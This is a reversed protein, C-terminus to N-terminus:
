DVILSGLLEDHGVYFHQSYEGPRLWILAPSVGRMLFGCVQQGESVSIPRGDSRVIFIHLLDEEGEFQYRYDGWAGGFDNPEIGVSQLAYHDSPRDIAPDFPPLKITRNERVYELVRSLVEKRRLAESETTLMVSASHSLNSSEIRKRICSKWDHEKSWESM